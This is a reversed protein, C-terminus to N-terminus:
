SELNKYYKISRLFMYVITVIYFGALFVIRYYKKDDYVIHRLQLVMNNLKNYQEIDQFLGTELFKWQNHLFVKKENVNALLNGVEM